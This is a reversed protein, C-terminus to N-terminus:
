GLLDEVALAAERANDVAHLVRAEHAALPGLVIPPREEDDERVLAALRHLCGAPVMPMPDLLVKRTVQGVGVALREGPCELLHANGM